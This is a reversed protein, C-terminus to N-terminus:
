YIKLIYLIVYFIKNLIYIEWLIFIQYANNSGSWWEVVYKPGGTVSSGCKNQLIQKFWMQEAQYAQNPKRWESGYYLLGCLCIM